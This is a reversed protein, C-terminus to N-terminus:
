KAQLVFRKAATAETVPDIVGSVYLLQLGRLYKTQKVSEHNALNYREMCQREMTL